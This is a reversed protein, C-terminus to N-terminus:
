GFTKEKPSALERGVARVPAATRLSAGTRTCFMSAAM